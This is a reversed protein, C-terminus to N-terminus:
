QCVITLLWYEQLHPEVVRPHDHRGQPLSKVLLADDLVFVLNVEKIISLMKGKKLCLSKLNSGWHDVSTPTMHNEYCLSETTQEESRKTLLVAYSLNGAESEFPDPFGVLLLKSWFFFQQVNQKCSFVSKSRFLAKTLFLISRDHPACIISNLIIVFSNWTYAFTTAGELTGCLWSAFLSSENNRM